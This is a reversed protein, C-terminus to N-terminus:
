SQLSLCYTKHSYLNFCISCVMLHWQCIWHIVECKHTNMNCYISEGPLPLAVYHLFPISVSVVSVFSVQRPSAVLAQALVVRGVRLILVRGPLVCTTVRTIRTWSAILKTQAEQCPLTAYTHISVVMVSVFMSPCCPNGNQYCENQGTVCAPNGTQQSLAGTAALLTFIALSITNCHM